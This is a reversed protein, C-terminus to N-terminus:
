EELFEIEDRMQACLRATLQCNRASEAAVFPKIVTTNGSLLNFMLRLAGYRTLDRDAGALEMATELAFGIRRLLSHCLTDTIEPSPSEELWRQAKERTMEELPHVMPALMLSERTRRDAWLQDALETERPLESAIEKIQPLNLGFVLPYPAGSKRIVDAIVGNRMAFFRRKILQFRNFETM